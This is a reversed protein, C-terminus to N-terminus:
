RGWATGSVTVRVRSTGAEVEPEPASLMAAEARVMPRVPPQRQDDISVQHPRWERGGLRKVASEAKDRWADIAEETLSVRLEEKREESVTFSMSTLQLDLEQLRGTLEVAQEVQTSELQLTQRIRWGVRESEGDRRQYVPQTSYATTKAKVGPYNESVELAQGMIRSVAAALRASDDGRREVVLTAHLLDNVAEQEAFASLQVTFGDGSEPPTGGAGAVAAQGAGVGLSFFMVLLRLGKKM